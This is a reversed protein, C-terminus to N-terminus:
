EISKKKRHYKKWRSLLMGLIGILLGLLFVIVWRWDFSKVTTGTARPTIDKELIPNSFFDFIKGQNAGTSRTNALVTAFNSNYDKSNKLDGNGSALLNNTANLVQQASNQTNTVAAIMLEFEGSNDTIIQASTATDNASKASSAIMSSLTQYLADGDATDAYISTEGDKRDQWAKQPLQTISNEGSVQSNAQFTSEPNSAEIKSSPNLPTQTSNTTDNANKELPTEPAAIWANYEDDIAKKTTNYWNTLNNLNTQFYDSPLESSLATIQDNLADSVNKINTLTSIVTSLSEKGATYFPTVDDDSLQKEIALEYDTDGSLNGYLKYISQTSANEFDQLSSLSTLSSADAGPAGYILTILHSITDMQGLLTTIYGFKGSTYGNMPQNPLLALTTTSEHSDTSDNTNVWKFDLTSSTASGLDVRYSITFTRNSGTPSTTVTSTTTGTATSGGTTSTSSPTAASNDLLLGTGTADPQIAADTMGVTFGPTTPLTLHYIAGAPVTITLQGTMTQDATTTTPLDSFNVSGATVPTVSQLAQGYNNILQLESEYKSQDFSSDNARLANFLSSYDSTTWSLQGLLGKLNDIYATTTGDSNTTFHDSQPLSNAILTALAKKANALTQTDTFTSSDFNSMTPASGAPSAFFHASLDGELSLLPAETGTLQGNQASLADRVKTIKDNYDTIKADLDALLEPEAGTDSFKKLADTISKNHAQYAALNNQYQKQYQLNYFNFDNAAQLSRQNSYFSLDSAYQANYQSNYYTWDNQYQSNLQAQYFSQWGAYQSDYQGKYFSYDNQQQQSILTTYFSLDSKEQNTIAQNSNAANLLAIQKQTAFYNQLPQLEGNFTQSTSQLMSQVSKTFSNQQSIWASNMGKLSNSISNVTSYGQNTTQFPGFVQRNLNGLINDQSNVVDNMNVQANAINGAISAYYMKVISTNFDHLVDVIKNQLIRDSLASQHSEVKYDVEAKSPDIDQLTLIDKSFTQPLYIVADISKDAYARDAVARSVVQWNYKSDNSVKNVFDTGFSYDKGNFSSAQDENVLAITVKTVQKTAKGQGDDLVKLLIVLVIATLTLIVLSVRYLRVAFKSVKKKKV